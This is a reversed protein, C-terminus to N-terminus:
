KSKAERLSKRRLDRDIRLYKYRNTILESTRLNSLWPQSLEYSQHVFLYAWPSEDQIMADLKRARDTRESGSPLQTLQQYLRDYEASIRPHESARTALLQFINEADPYDLGWANFAIQTEGKELKELFTPLTNTQVNLRIGLAGFQKSLVDGMKRSGADAGRLDLKLIPLERGGPFGAKELLTQALKPNFDQTLVPNPPRDLIGPPLANVMKQARGGAWAEIIEDRNIAHALAQRLLKNTGLLPDKLNFELYFIRTGHDTSLRFGKNRLPSRLEGSSLLIEPAQDKTILIRDLLGSEM